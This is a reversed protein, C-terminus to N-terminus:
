RKVVEVAEAKVKTVSMTGSGAPFCIAMEILEPDSVDMETSLFNWEGKKLEFVRYQYRVKGSAVRLHLDSRPYALATWRYSGGPKWDLDAVNRSKDNFAYDPSVKVALTIKMRKTSAPMKFAQSLESFNFKSLNITAVTDGDVKDVKGAGRWGEKGSAFDGNKIEACASALLAAQFVAPLLISKM